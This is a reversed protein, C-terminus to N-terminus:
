SATYKRRPFFESDAVMGLNGRQVQTIVSLMPKSAAINEAVPFVRGGDRLDLLLANAKDMRDKVADGFPGGRRVGYGRPELQYVGPARRPRVGHLRRWPACLDAGRAIGQHARHRHHHEDRRRHWGGRRRDRTGRPATRRGLPHVARRDRISRAHTRRYPSPHTKLGVWGGVFLSLDDRDPPSTPSMSAPL